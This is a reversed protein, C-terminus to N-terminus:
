ISTITASEFQIGIAFLLDERMHPAMFQMGLPLHAGKEEVVGSPVSLAPFGTHNAPVTFVDELYMQVPDHAKEGLKFAPGASTPTAIVDIHEFARTYDELIVRRVANAHNYYADYYGASLVYTGLIIRRRPEPGFGRGRTKFYDDLLGDGDVHLGYKVGDFRALNASAEAPLLIYYAPVAYRVNPLRIEVIEHGIGQLRRIGEEFNKRVRSDLKWEDFFHTPVGVKLTSPQLNSTSSEVVSTSDLPDYGRIANFIIEADEVTKAIPGICDLSSGLAILGYRSVAGYTPKLGVVGCLAAPLRISGATDSGLAGLSMGGAVAAASGGSSGGPVRSIDHPNWTPGFASGETSAGMAFEDMNTRGLFVAGAEKLKKIATADYTARYNELIKSAASAVKEKILINDKVATPIGLLPTRLGLDNTRLKEDAERAQNLVDDFVELYAHIDKDKEEIAELYAEALKVATFDGADLHERAKAITLTNTDIM